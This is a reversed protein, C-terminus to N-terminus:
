AAAGPHDTASPSHPADPSPSSIPQVGHESCALLQQQGKWEIVHLSARPTLRVSQVVKLNAEGQRVLLQRLSLSSSGRSQRRWGAWALVVLLLLSLFALTGIGGTWGDEAGRKFPLMAAGSGAVAASAATAPLDGSGAVADLVFCFNACLLPSAAAVRRARVALDTV